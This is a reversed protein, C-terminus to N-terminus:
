TRMSRRPLHPRRLGADSKRVCTVGEIGQRDRSTTVPERQWLCGEGGLMEPPITELMRKLRMVYNRFVQLGHSTIEVVVLPRWSIVRRTRVLGAEELKRLHHDLNGPTVCSLQQLEMLGVRRKLFLLYILSCRPKAHSVKEEESLALLNEM